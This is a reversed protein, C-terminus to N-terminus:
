VIKETLATEIDVLLLGEQEDDLHALVEGKSNWAASNGTSEFNDCTGLCNSMLVPLNYKASIAAYHKYAKAVGEASKAVSALYINAGNNIAHQLHQPQLTEYCIAPAIIYHQHQLYVQEEGHVFYPLEDEHLLQKAYLSRKKFPQFIIMGILVMNGKKVPMGVCITIAKEDSINQFIDLSSDDFDIALEKALLSQYSTLSLEPFVILSANREAALNIFNIHSQINKQVDGKVPKTQAIAIKV